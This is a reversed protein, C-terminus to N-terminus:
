LELIGNVPDIYIMKEAIDIKQVYEKSMPIMYEKKVGDIILIDTGGTDVVNIVKGLKKKDPLIVASDILEDVYFEDEALPLLENQQIKVLYNRYKLAEDIDDIGALKLIVFNKHFWIDEIVKEIKESNNPSVLVVEDLLEFRRLDDTFSTVRVEGKNGQNKAIKGVTILEEM